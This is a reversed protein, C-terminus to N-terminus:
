IYDRMGWRTAVSLVSPHAHTGADRQPQPALDPVEHVVGHIQPRRSILSQLSKQTFLWVSGSEPLRQEALSLPSRRRKRYEHGNITNM